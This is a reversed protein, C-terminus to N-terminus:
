GDAPLVVRRGRLDREYLDELLMGRRGLVLQGCYPLDHQAAHLHRGRRLNWQLLRGLEHLSPQRLHVPQARVIRQQVRIHLM